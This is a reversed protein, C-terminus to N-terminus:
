GNYLRDYYEAAMRDSDFYPVVDDLSNKMVSLWQAPQQYYMPIVVQELLDYLQGADAQDQEFTSLQSDVPPIVFGNVKDRIFEPIWGDLTSVNIAGNMAATMGSTGSAERTVRPTNLWVDAGQKLIKSLRLEYGTLIACNPYHKSLDVIRDFIGIGQYDAPYPKGAWIFQVPFASNAILRHFRELDHLLLDARKYGAFRRAWVITLVEPKYLKGTQDAIEELLPHKLHKKRHTIAEDDQNRLHEYLRADAWYHENQANTISVIPELQPRNSYMQRLTRTHMRSVGNSVKALQLAALTHDLIDGEPQFYRRVEDTPVQGFFSLRELFRMDTKQNGGAEPTHNTFVLHEQVKQWDQWKEYLAFVLPLAHSENLHYIDPIMGLEDLLRVGGIGLLISQAIRTEPNPDYLKHTITQALYDNEPLDTSLLFMPVTGFHHPPLYYATVTVTSHNVRIKFKINTSELFGHVKEVFSVGMRQDPQRVQDYYGYKWLIGVGVLNQLLQAASRMHSGALYGLGGAYIKLPQHIAYEMSFYAVSRTYKPDFTYPHAFSTSM